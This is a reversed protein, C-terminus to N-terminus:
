RRHTELLPNIKNRLLKSSLTGSTWFRNHHRSTEHVEEIAEHKLSPRLEEIYDKLMQVKVDDDHKLNPLPEQFGRMSRLRPWSATMWALEKTGIRHSVGEFGFVEQGRLTGLRGLGSVLTLELSNCIPPSVDMYLRGDVQMIVVHGTILRLAELDLRSEYGLDLVKLQTMEDCDRIQCRLIELGRCVWPEALLCDVYLEHNIADLINFDLCRRLLLGITNVKLWESEDPHISHKYEVLQFIQLGPCHTGLAAATLPYLTKISLM